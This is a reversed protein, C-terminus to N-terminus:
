YSRHWLGTAVRGPGATSLLLSSEETGGDQPGLNVLLWHLFCPLCDETFTSKLAKSLEKNGFRSLVKLM